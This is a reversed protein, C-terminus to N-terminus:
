RVAGCLGGFRACCRPLPFRRSSSVMAFASVGLSRASRRASCLSPDMLVSSQRRWSYLLFMDRFIRTVTYFPVERKGRSRRAKNSITSRGQPARQDGRSRSPGGMRAKRGQSESTEPRTAAHREQHLGRIRGRLALTGYTNRKGRTREHTARPALYREDAELNKRRHKGNKRGSVSKGILIEHKRLKATRMFRQNGAPVRLSICRYLCFNSSRPAELSTRPSFISSTAHWGCVAVALDM